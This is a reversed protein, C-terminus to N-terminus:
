KKQVPVLQQNDAPKPPEAQKHLTIPPTRELSLAGEAPPPTTEPQAINDAFVNLSLMSCFLVFLAILYQMAVEGAFNKIGWM